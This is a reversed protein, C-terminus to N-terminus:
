GAPVELKETLRELREKTRGFKVFDGIMAALDTAYDANAELYDNYEATTLLKPGANIHEIVASTYGDLEDLFPVIRDIATKQWASAEDRVELLKATQRGLENVHDRIRTIAAAHMEKSVNMRTFSEMFVADDSLQVATAKTEALLKTVEGSDAGAARVTSAGLFGMTLLVGTGAFYTNRLRMVNM